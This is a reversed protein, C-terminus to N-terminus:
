AERMRSAALYVDCETVSPQKLLAARAAAADLLRVAKDPLSGELSLSRAVATEVLPADITVGHHAALTDRLHHLAATTDERALETIEVLDIRNALPGQTLRGVYPPLCTAALRAGGDLAGALLWPTLPITMAALELRELALFVTGVTIAEELVVRLAKEREGGWVAGALVSSLDVSLLELGPRACDLLRAVSYLLNTKGSGSAGALVPLRPEFCLLSTAIQEAPEALGVTVPASGDRVRATLNVAFRSLLGEPDLRGSNNAPQAAGLMVLAQRVADGAQPFVGAGASVARWGHNRDAVAFARALERDPGLYELDEDVCVLFPMGARPRKVLVGTQAKSFSRADAPVNHLVFTDDDPSDLRVKMQKLQAKLVPELGAM